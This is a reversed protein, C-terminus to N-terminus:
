EVVLLQKILVNIDGEEKSKIRAMKHKLDLKEIMGTKGSHKGAFVLVNAKEQLPLCKEIKNEKFDILVSDDTTCKLDALFNRGDSLNIQMRKGKLIKKGIIKSVKKGADKQSIEEVKFKGNDKLSLRYSKKAPVITVVDYLMVPQKDERVIKENLLVNKEYLARKAERRNQCVKLMDRLFILIPVSTKLNSLPKVVFTTGKRSIPWNKPIKQRKLHTM